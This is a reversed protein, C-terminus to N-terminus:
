PAAAKILEITKDANIVKPSAPDQSESIAGKRLNELLKTVPVDPAESLVRAVVGSAIAAAPGTGSWRQVNAGPAPLGVGPAWFSKPDRQSFGAPKGNNDVASVMAIRDLLDTGAFPVKRNAGENGASQVVVINQDSVQRLLSSVIGSDESGRIPLLMVHPKQPLLDRIAEVADSVRVVPRRSFFFETKPAVLRVTNMIAIFYGEDDRSESAEPGVLHVAASPIASRPAGGVIAVRITNPMADTSIGVKRLLPGITEDMPQELTVTAETPVRPTGSSANIANTVRTMRSQLDRKEGDSGATDAAQAYLERARPLKGAREAVEGTIRALSTWTPVKGTLPDLLTLVDEFDKSPDRGRAIQRNLEALSSLAQLLNKFERDRLAGVQPISRSISRHAIRHAVASLIVDHSPDNDLHIVFTDVGAPDFNGYVHKKNGVTEIVIRMSTPSSFQQFLWNAVGTLEVGGVNLQITFSEQLRNPLEDRVSEIPRREVPAVIEAKATAPPEASPGLTKAADM